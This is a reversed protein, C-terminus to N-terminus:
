RALGHIDLRTTPKSTVIGAIAITTTTTTGVSLFDSAPVM